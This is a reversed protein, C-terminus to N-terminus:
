KGSAEELYLTPWLGGSLSAAFVIRKVIEQEEALVELAELRQYYSRGAQGSRYFEV